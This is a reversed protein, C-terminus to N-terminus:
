HGPPASVHVVVTLGRNTLNFDGTAIEGPELIREFDFLTDDDSLYDHDVIRAGLYLSEDLGLDVTFDTRPFFNTIPISSGSDLQYDSDFERLQDGAAFYGRIPGVAGPDDNGRLDPTVLRAFSVTVTRPCAGLDITRVNSLPSEQTPARPSPGRYATMQIDLRQGCPPQDHYIHVSRTADKSITYNGNVYIKFGNIDYREGEFTWYLIYRGSSRTLTTIQPARLVPTKCGPTCVRYKVRFSHGSNGGISDATVEQIAPEATPYSGSISGLRYYTGSASGEPIGGEGGTSTTPGEVIGSCELSVQVEPGKAVAITRSNLPGMVAAIDWRHGGLSHFPGIREEPRGALSAYCDVRTYDHSVSFELAQIEVTTLTYMRFYLEPILYDEAGETAEEANPVGDGDSDVGGGPPLSGGSGASGAETPTLDTDNQVGDNDSDGAGSAPCGSNSAPGPVDPCLDAVDRVGDADRDPCGALGPLGSTDPCADDADRVGDADRDPCGGAGASGPERPCADSADLVADGDGDGPAPCGNSEPVGSERPCADTSDNVGDNDADPCGGALGVGPQDPCRDSADGVGDGDRDGPVTAPCGNAGPPGVQDPCGDLADPTGDHDRDEGSVSEVNISAQAQGNRVDYARAILTHPGPGSPRWQTVIPLPSVGGPVSSNQADQLKGDVWLEIRKVKQEGRAIAHITTEQGGDIKEGSRPAQILVLPPTTRNSLLFAAVSGAMTLLGCLALIVVLLMLKKSM